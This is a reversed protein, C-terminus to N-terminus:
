RLWLSLWGGPCWAGGQGEGVQGLGVLQYAWCLKLAYVLFWVSLLCACSSFCVVLRCASWRWSMHGPGGVAEGEAGLVRRGSISCLHRVEDGEGVGLGGGRVGDGWEWEKGLGERM